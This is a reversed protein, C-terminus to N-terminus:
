LGVAPQNISGRRRSLRHFTQSDTMGLEVRQLRRTEATDTTMTTMMLEVNDAATSERGGVEWNTTWTKVRSLVFHKARRDIM